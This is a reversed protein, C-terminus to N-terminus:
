QEFASTLESSAWQYDGNKFRKIMGDYLTKHRPISLEAIEILEYEDAARGGLNADELNEHIRTAKKFCLVSTDIQDQSHLYKAARFYDGIVLIWARFGACLLQPFANYYASGGTRILADVNLNILDARQQHIVSDRGLLEIGGSLHMYASRYIDNLLENDISNKKIVEPYNSLLRLQCTGISICLQDNDFYNNLDNEAYYNAGKLYHHLALNPSEFMVSLTEAMTLDLFPWSGYNLILDNYTDRLEFPDNANYLRPLQAYLQNLTEAQTSM